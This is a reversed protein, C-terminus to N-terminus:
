GDQLDESVEDWDIAERESSSIPPM